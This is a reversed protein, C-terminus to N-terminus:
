DRIFDSGRQTLVLTLGDSQVEMFGNNILEDMAKKLADNQKADLKAIVNSVVDQKSMIQGVSNRKKFWQLFMEKVENKPASELPKDKPFKKTTNSQNTKIQKKQSPKM